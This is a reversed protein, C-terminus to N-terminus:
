FVEETFFEELPSSLDEEIAEKFNPIKPKQFILTEVFVCLYIFMKLDFENIEESKQLSLLYEDLNRFFLTRFYTKQESELLINQYFSDLFLLFFDINVINMSNTLFKELFGDIELLKELFKKQFLYKQYFPLSKQELNLLFTSYFDVFDGNILELVENEPLKQLLNLLNETNFILHGGKLLTKLINKLYFVRNEKSNELFFLIKESTQVLFESDKKLSILNLIFDIYIKLDTTKIFNKLLAKDFFRLVGELFKDTEKKENVKNKLNEFLKLVLGEQENFFSQLFFNTEIMFDLIGVFKKFNKETFEVKGLVKIYIVIIRQMWFDPSGNIVHFCKLFEHLFDILKDHIFGHIEINRLFIYVFDMLIDRKSFVEIYKLLNELLFLHKTLPPVFNQDSAMQIILFFHHFYLKEVATEINETSIQWLDNTNLCIQILEQFLKFFQCSKLYKLPSKQQLAEFFEKMFDHKDNFFQSIENFYSDKRMLLTQMEQLYNQLQYKETFFLSLNM